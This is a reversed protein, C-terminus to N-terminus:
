RSVKRPSQHHLSTSQPHPSFPDHTSTCNQFPRYFVSRRSYLCKSPWQRWRCGFDQCGFGSGNDDKHDKSVVFVVLPLIIIGTRHKVQPFIIPLLHSVYRLRKCASKESPYTVVLGLDTLRPGLSPQVNSRHRKM